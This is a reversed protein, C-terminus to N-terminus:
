ISSVLLKYMTGNVDFVPLYGTASTAGPVVAQGIRLNSCSATGDIGVYFLETNKAANLCTMFRGAPSTDTNRQIVIGCAGNVIQTGGFLARYTNASDDLNDFLIGHLIPLSSGTVNDNYNTEITLPQYANLLIGNYSNKVSMGWTWSATGGRQIDIGVCTAQADGIGTIFLGRNIGTTESFLNLNMEYIHGSCGTINMVPNCNYYKYDINDESGTSVGEYRLVQWHRKRIQFSANTVTEGSWPTPDATGEGNLKDPGFTITNNERDVSVVRMTLKTTEGSPWGSITTVALIGYGPYIDDINSVDTMVASGNTITGTISKPFGSIDDPKLEYSASLVGGGAPSPVNGLYFKNKEGSIVLWPNTDKPSAFNGNGTGPTGAGIGTFQTGNDFKWTVTKSGDDPNDSLYYIGNPVYITCGNRAAIYSELFADYDDSVGDGVAGYDKVNFDISGKTVKIEIENKNDVIAGVLDDNPTPLLSRDGIASDIENKKYYDLPNFGAIAEAESAAIEAQEKYYKANDTTDGSEVGGVAYRKSKNANTVSINAQVIIDALYDPQLYEGTISGPIIGSKITGDSEVSFSVTDTDEFEYQTVLASMDVHQVTGDDLTIDLQQTEPNYVFNVALKELKTDITTSTGNVKTITLVGTSENYTISQVVTNVTSQNAKATDLVIIRDDHVNIAYDMKNLNTAGLATATSPQNQWIIRDYAKDM